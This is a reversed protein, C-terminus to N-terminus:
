RRSRMWWPMGTISRRISIRVGERDPGAAGREAKRRDGRDPRGPRQLPGAGPLHGCRAPRFQRAAAASQRDAARDRHRPSAPHHGDRLLHHRIQRGHLRGGNARDASARCGSVRLIDEWRTRRLDEILADLGVTHQEIFALDLVPEGGARLAAEHAELVLKMIGKLVAVDGGVNVQCYESAIRTSSFTVMEVPNQPAAFRELARERLPNIAVIPVGRRSANRLSTMMRPSNTGPNQGIVFIADTADFDELLVTGKGIGISEPLGVSTAEHCMNSCDPFNNTGFRRVFLQYLFAAENSARGSTYFEAKNPATWRM